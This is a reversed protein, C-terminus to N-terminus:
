HLSIFIELVRNTVPPHPLNRKVKLFIGNEWLKVKTLSWKISWSKLNIGQTYINQYRKQTRGCMAGFNILCLKLTICFPRCHSYLKNSFYTKFFPWDWNTVGTTHWCKKGWIFVMCALALFFIQFLKPAPTVLQSQGKKSSKEAIFKITM